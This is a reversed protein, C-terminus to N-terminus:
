DWLHNIDVERGEGRNLSEISAKLHEANAPSGLLHCTEMVSKLVDDSSIFTVAGAREREEYDEIAKADAAEAFLSHLEAREEPSVPRWEDISDEIEQEYADLVFAKETPEGYLARGTTEVERLFPDSNRLLSYEETSYVITDMPYRRNVSRLAQSIADTREMREAFSKAQRGPVVVVLDIDSNKTATGKAYSGLLVVKFPKLPRLSDVIEQIVAFPLTM